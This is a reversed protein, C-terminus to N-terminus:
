TTTYYTGFRRSETQSGLRKGKRTHEEYTRANTKCILATIEVEM